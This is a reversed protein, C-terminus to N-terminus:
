EHQNELLHWPNEAFRFSASLRFTKTKNIVNHPVDVRILTPTNLTFRHTETVDEMRYTHFHIEPLNKRPTEGRKVQQEYIMYEVPKCGENLQYYVTEPEIYNSIPWNFAVRHPFNGPKGDTHPPTGIHSDPAVKIFVVQNYKGMDLSDLIPQVEPVAKHV